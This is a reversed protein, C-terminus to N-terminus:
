PAPYADRVPRPEAADDGWDLGRTMARAILRAQIGLGTKDRPTLRRDDVVWM